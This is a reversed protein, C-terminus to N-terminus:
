ARKVRRRGRNFEGGVGGERWGESEQATFSPSTPSVLAKERAAAAVAAAAAAEREQARAEAAAERERVRAEAEAERERVLAELGSNGGLDVLPRLLQVQPPSAKPAQAAGPQLTHSDVPEDPVWAREPSTTLRPRAPLPVEDPHPSAGEAATHSGTDATDALGPACARERDPMSAKSGSRQPSREEDVESSAAKHSAVSSGGEPCLLHAKSNTNKLELELQLYEIQEGGAGGVGGVVM